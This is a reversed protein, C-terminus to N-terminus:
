TRLRDVQSHRGSASSFFHRLTSVLGVVTTTRLNVAETQAHARAGTSCNKGGSTALTAAFDGNSKGRHESAVVANNFGAVKALNNSAPVLLGSSVEDHISAWGFEIPHANNNGRLAPVRDNSVGKASPRTSDGLVQDVV